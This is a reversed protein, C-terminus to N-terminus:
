AEAAAAPTDPSPRSLSLWAATDPPLLGDTLPGSALLVKVHLPLPVPDGSLNVVCGFGGARGFALV